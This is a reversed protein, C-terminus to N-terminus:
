SQSESASQLPQQRGLRTMPTISEPVIYWEKSTSVLYRGCLYRSDIAAQETVDTIKPCNASSPALHLSGIRGVVGRSGRWIILCEHM